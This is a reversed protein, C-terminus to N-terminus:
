IIGASRFTRSIKNQYKKSFFSPRKKTAPLHRPSPGSILSQKTESPPDNPALEHGHELWIETVHNLSHNTNRKREQNEKM